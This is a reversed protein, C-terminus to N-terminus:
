FLAKFSISMGFANLIYKVGCFSHCPTTISDQGPCRSGKVTSVDLDTDIRNNSEEDEPLIEELLRELVDGRARLGWEQKLQDVYEIFQISLEVTIRRSRVGNELASM